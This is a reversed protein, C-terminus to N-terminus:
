LERQGQTTASQSCCLGRRTRSTAMPQELSSTGTHEFKINTLLVTNSSIRNLLVDRVTGGEGIYAYASQTEMYFHKQSGCRHTGNIKNKATKLAAPADGSKMTAQTPLGNSSLDPCPGGPSKKMADEITLVPAGGSEYEIKVRSAADKAERRSRAIMCGVFQGYHGIKGGAPVFVYTPTYQPFAEEPFPYPEGLPSSSNKGVIDTADVFGIVGPM